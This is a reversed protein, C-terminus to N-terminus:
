ILNKGYSNTEIIDFGVSLIESLHQKQGADLFYATKLGADKLRKVEAKIEPTRYDTFLNIPYRTMAAQGTLSNGVFWVVDDYNVASNTGSLRPVVDYGAIAAKIEDVPYTQSGDIFVKVNFLKAADLFQRLTPVRVDGFESLNSGATLPYSQIEALTTESIKRNIGCMRLLTDDHHLVYVGDSTKKVDIEVAFHGNAAAKKMAEITNEPAEDMFCRHGFIQPMDRSNRRERTLMFDDESRIMIFGSGKHGAIYHTTEISTNSLEVGFGNLGIVYTNPKSVLKYSEGEKIYLPKALTKRKVHDVFRYTLRGEAVNALSFDKSIMKINDGYSYFKDYGIIDAVDQLLVMSGDQNSISLYVDCPISPKTIEILSNSTSNSYSEYRINKGELAWVVRVNILETTDLAWINSNVLTYWNPNASLATPALAPNVGVYEFREAQPTIEIDELAMRSYININELISSNDIDWAIGGISLAFYHADSPINPSYIGTRTSDGLTESSVYTFDKRFYYIITRYGSINKYLQMDRNIKKVATNGYYESYEAFALYKPNVNVSRPMFDKRKLGFMVFSKEKIDNLQSRIAEGASQYIKGDIGTRIDTLESPKSGDGATATLNDIRNHANKLNDVLKSIEKMLETFNTSDKVDLESLRKALSEYPGRAQSVEMNANGNATADDYAQQIGDHIAQRVDRGFVGEKIVKLYNDIGM